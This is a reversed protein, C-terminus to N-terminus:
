VLRVDMQYIFLSILQYTKVTKSNVMSYFITLELMLALLMLGLFLVRLRILQSSLHLAQMQLHQSQTISHNTHADLMVSQLHMSSSLAKALERRYTM